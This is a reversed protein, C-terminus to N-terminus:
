RSAELRDLKVEPHNGCYSGSWGPNFVHGQTRWRRRAAPAAAPTSSMASMNTCTQM